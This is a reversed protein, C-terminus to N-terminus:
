WIVSLQFDVSSRIRNQRCERSTAIAELVTASHQAATNIDVIRNQGDLVIVGDQMSEVVQDHAIPVLDLLSWRTFSWVLLIGTLAFGLPTLDWGPVPGLNFVYLLNVLWPPFIAALLVLTQRRYLYRRQLAARLFLATATTLILYAYAVMVWFWPGHGYIVILANSGPVPSPTFSTWILHHWENTAALGLTIGRHDFPARDLASGCRVTLIAM